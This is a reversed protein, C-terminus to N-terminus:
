FEAVWFALVGRLLLTCWLFLEAASSKALHAPSKGYSGRAVFTGRLPFLFAPCRM